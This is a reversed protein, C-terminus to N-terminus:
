FQSTKRTSKGWRKISNCFFRQKDRDISKAEFGANDLVLVAISAGKHYINARHM